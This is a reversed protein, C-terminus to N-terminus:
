CPMLAKDFCVAMAGYRADMAEISAATWEPGSLRSAELRLGAREALLRAYQLQTRGNGERFPHVFNLDGVIRALRVAMETGAIERAVGLAEALRHVAATGFGIRRHDLFHSTAKSINVTRVEGAWDYVDQFLHRHIARLHALDFRGRPVGELIRQSVLGREARDLDGQDRLGLKNRFIGTGPYLYPDIM